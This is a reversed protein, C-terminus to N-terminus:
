EDRIEGLTSPINRKMADSIMSNPANKVAYKKTRMTLPVGHGVGGYWRGTYTANMLVHMRTVEDPVTCQASCDTLRPLTKPMRAPRSNVNRIPRVNRIVCPTSYERTPKLVESPANAVIKKQRVPSCPACTKTPRVIRANM